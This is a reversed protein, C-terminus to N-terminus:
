DQNPLTEVTESSTFQRRYERPSMHFREQFVRNFTRQSEFGANEYAETISQDTHQLLACVCDLRTENLYQNFNRHFTGSFIRSLAYPSYGLDHAMSTLTLPEKFHASIYAVTQYIIDNSGITSKEVLQFAPMSRALIIQVFSQYIVNEHQGAPNLFLSRIAYIIDPHLHDSKIVPDVPCLQQLDSLYNGCLSPSAFLYYAKGPLADFVQYHHVLDPFVIAFDGQELAYLETGIGLTLSGESVYICEVSKHLHPPIHSSSKSVIKLSGQIDEYLPLM